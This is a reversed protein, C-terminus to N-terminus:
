FVGGKEIGDIKLESRYDLSTYEELIKNMELFRDKLNTLTNNITSKLEVLAPNSTEADIHQSFWGKGVRDMVVQVNEIFRQDNKIGNEIGDLYDNINHSIHAIEDHNTVEIRNSASGTRKLEDTAVELLKLSKFISTGIMIALLTIIVVIVLAIVDAQLINGNKESEVEKHLSKVLDKIIIISKNVTDRMKKQLGLEKNLGLEQETNTLTKFANKYTTLSNLVKSKQDETFQSSKTVNKFIADIKKLGKNIYKIDKKLMFDKEYKRLEYISALLKFHKIEKVINQIDSASSRLTGYLADKPNLGIEKQKIVIKFFCVQYAKMIENFKVVKSSDMDHLDLLYILEKSDKTLTKMSKEFKSKENIDHNMLFNKENIRLQKMGVKLEIVKKEAEELESISSISLNMLIVLIGLGFISVLTSLILKSKITVNKLM